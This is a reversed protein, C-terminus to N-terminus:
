AGPLRGDPGYFGAKSPAVQLAALAKRNYEMRTRILVGNNNNGQRARRAAACLLAWQEAIRADGQAAVEMGAFGGPLDLAHLHADRDKELAAIRETLETKNEIIGPLAELPQAAILAKEEHALLAEFALVAAVEETVTSLLADRM